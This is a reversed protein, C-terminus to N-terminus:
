NRAYMTIRDYALSGFTCTGADQNNLRLDITDGAALNGLNVVRGNSKSNVGMVGGVSANNVIIDVTSVPRPAAINLEIHLQVDKLGGAPVTFIGTSTNYQLGYRQNVPTSPVTSFKLVLTGGSAVSAGALNQAIFIQQYDFRATGGVIGYLGRRFNANFAQESLRVEAATENMQATPFARPAPAHFYCTDDVVILGRFGNGGQFSVGAFNHFGTAHSMRIGGTGDAVGTVGTVNLGVWILSASEVAAGNVCILGWTNDFGPSDIPQSYFCYGNSIGPIMCEGGNIHVVGGVCTVVADQVPGFAGAAASVLQYGTVEIVAQTGIVVLPQPTNYTYGGRITIESLLNDPATLDGFQWGVKASLANFNLDHLSCTRLNGLGDSGSGWVKIAAGYLLSGNASIGISGSSKLGTCNKLELVSPYSGTTAVGFIVGTGSIGYDSHDVCSISSVMYYGNLVLQRKSTNALDFAAQLAATRVEIPDSPSYGHMEPYVHQNLVSFSQSTNVNFDAQTGGLYGLMAAGGSTEFEQVNRVVGAPDTYFVNAAYAIPGEGSAILDAIASDIYQKNAADTGVTPTGLNIIKYGNMNLTNQLGEFGLGEAFEQSLFLLQEFNEDLTLRSFPAGGDYINYMQTNQTARRVVVTVGNPVLGGPTGATNLFQITTASSWNYDVGVVLPLGQDLSVSIDTQNFFEIGVNVINLTGDSVEVQTALM